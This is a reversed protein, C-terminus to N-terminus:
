QVSRRKWRIWRRRISLQSTVDMAVAIARNGASAIEGALADLKRDAARPLAVAAGRKALVRAFQRGLGRSAGTM